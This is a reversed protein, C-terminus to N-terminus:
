PQVVLRGDRVQYKQQNDPGIYDSAPKGVRFNAFEASKVPQYSAAANKDGKGSYHAIYPYPFVPRTKAMAPAAQAVPSSAKQVGHFQAQASADAKGGASTDPAVRGSMAGSPPAGHPPQGDEPMPPMGQEAHASQGTVIQQPAIGQETWAMLPTLLDIQDYGEGGGCHGVGPLLFLRLFSEAAKEGLAQQVGRYYAISFAPSVSDDALGHWMLLKGGRQMFGHLNTNAANYLPALQAVAAFNRQNLPFDTMSSITQKGGPLLVSKLAPLVMMEAMSHGRASDPVAWRLESGLPLGGAVFQHGASDRAGAYFKKAVEIEERTLCDAKDQQDDGCQKVWNPSFQCAYPNQLIGDNVGSLTPCHQLVARHLIPLRDKLLIASGDARQNAVVSWGHYFSNQFQFFAAPAGASIGDFDDPYRQAEMLAERGGDSCGMFYSYKPSQGYFAHILAKTLLATLHNARYAFDIRKQPDEAWSGDMMSGSHGMDTAAVTFEGNMAPVCGSANSLSLNINGCLGGCGVQLFRQTWQQQPLAVEVGIAPAITAKVQCFSGQPTNFPKASHITVKEGVSDAFSIAALQECSLVPKVATLSEAATAQAALMMLALALFGKIVFALPYFVQKM